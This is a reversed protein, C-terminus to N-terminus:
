VRERCSARGIRLLRDLQAEPLRYTGAQEIPNQTAIVMFPRGTTHRVGDVTVQSEEMVELLTSQTKPNARNIEDALVISSFIPGAHFDWQATSRLKWHPIPLFTTQFGRNQPNTTPLIKQPHKATRNSTLFYLRLYVSLPHIPM